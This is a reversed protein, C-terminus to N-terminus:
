VQPEFEAKLALYQAYRADREDDGFIFSWPVEVRATVMGTGREDALYHEIRIVEAQDAVQRDWNQGNAIRWTGYGSSDRLSTVPAVVKGNMNDVARGTATFDMFRRLVFDVFRRKKETAACIEGLDVPTFTEETMLTLHASM